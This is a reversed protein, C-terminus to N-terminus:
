LLQGYLIVTSWALLPYQLPRHYSQTHTHTHTRLGKKTSPDKLFGVKTIKEVETM